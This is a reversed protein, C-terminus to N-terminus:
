SNPQASAVLVVTVIAVVSCAFGALLNTIRQPFDNAFRYAGGILVILTPATIAIAILPLGPSAAILTM